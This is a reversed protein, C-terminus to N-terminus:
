ILDLDEEPYDLEYQGRDLIRNIASEETDYRNYGDQNIFMIAPLNVVISYVNNKMAWRIVSTDVGTNGTNIIVKLKNEEPLENNLNTLFSDVYIDLEEQSRGATFISPGTIYVPTGVYHAINEELSYSNYDKYGYFGALPKHLRIAVSGLTEGAKMPKNDEGGIWLISKSKKIGYDIANGIKQAKRSKKNVRMTVIHLYVGKAENVPKKLHLMPNKDLPAKM